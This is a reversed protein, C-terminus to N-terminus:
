GVTPPYIKAIFQKDTESLERNWGVEYGGVTLEKPVAYLMISKPDFDSHLSGEWHRFLNQDVKDKSWGQSEAYYRYVAEKNWPIDTAPSQHEHICGLAHGFEHTVVRSYEDDPTDDTLWGLNMTEAPFWATKLADTGLASWSTGDPVFAVRIQATPDDVFEFRINVYPHWAKAYREVKARVKPTGGLFHVRLVSGAPWFKEPPGALEFGGPVRDICMKLMPTEAM